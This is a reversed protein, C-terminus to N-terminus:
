KTKMLKEIHNLVLRDHSDLGHGESILWKKTELEQIYESQYMFYFEQLEKMKDSSLSKVFIIYEDIKQLQEEVSINKNMTRKLTNTMKNTNPNDGM